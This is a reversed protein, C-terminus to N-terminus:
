LCAEEEETLIQRLGATEWQTTIEGESHPQPQFHKADPDGCEWTVPLKLSYRGDGTRRSSLVIRRCRATLNLIDNVGAEVGNATYIGCLIKVTVESNEDQDSGGIAQLIVYPFDIQGQTKPPLEGLFIQAPAYAEEVGPVRFRPDKLGGALLAEVEKLLGFPM